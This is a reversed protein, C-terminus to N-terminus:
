MLMHICGLILENDYIYETEVVQSIEDIILWRLMSYDRAKDSRESASRAAGFTIGCSHHLTDGGIQDAVVAQYAAFQYQKSEEWGLAHFLSRLAKIVYSKGVGPGGCILARVPESAGSQGRSVEHTEQMIRKKVLALVQTQKTNARAKDKNYPIYKHKEYWSDVASKVGGGQLVAVSGGSVTGSAHTWGDMGAAMNKKQSSRAAKLNDDVERTDPKKFKLDVHKKSDFMNSTMHGWTEKVLNFSTVATPGDQKEGNSSKQQRMHTKLAETQEESTLKISTDKQNSGNSSEDEQRTSFVAQFNTIYWKGHESLVHGDCWQVWSQKWTLGQNRLGTVYPVHTSSYEADLVWPRFYISMHCAHDDHTGNWSLVKGQFRPVAPRVRRVMVWEHRLTTTGEPFAVWIRGNTIGDEGHIMYDIGPVLPENCNQKQVGAQTLYGHYASRRLKADEDYQAINQWHGNGPPYTVRLIEWGMVFEYPSLHHVADHKGRYGYKYGVNKDSVVRPKRSSRRDIELPEYVVSEVPNGAAANQCAVYQECPFPALLASKLSEAHTVDTKKRMVLLNVAEVAMRLLGRGYLDSMVRQTHRKAYRLTSKNHEMDLQKCLKHQGEVFTSIEKKAIPARKSVYSSCYGVTDNQCRSACANVEDLSGSKLCMPKTCFESHMEPLLPLRYTLLTDSNCRLCYLLAPHTGNVWPDNRSGVIAGLMNKKGSTRLKMIEAIGYCAVACKHNMTHTLESVRPYRSRCEGPQNKLQCYPQPKRHSDDDPFELDPLHVHHQFMGQTRQITQLFGEKWVAGNRQVLEAASILIHNLTDASAPQVLAHASNPYLPWDSELQKRRKQFLEHNHYMENDVHKKYEFFRNVIKPGNIEDRIKEAIETLTSHQHICQLFLLLHLHLAGCKQCEQLTFSSMM